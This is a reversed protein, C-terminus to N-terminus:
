KLYITITNALLVRNMENPKRANNESELWLVTQKYIFYNQISNSILFYFLITTETSIEKLRRVLSFLSLDIM